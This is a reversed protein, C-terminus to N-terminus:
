WSSPPPMSLRLGVGHAQSLDCFPTVSLPPIYCAKQGVDTKEVMKGDSWLEISGYNRRMIVKLLILSSSPGVTFGYRQSSSLQVGVFISASVESHDASHDHEECIGNAKSENAAVRFAFQHYGEGSWPSGLLVVQEDGDYRCDLQNESLELGEISGLINWKFVDLKPDYGLTLMNATEDEVIVDCEYTEAGNAVIVKYPSCKAPKTPLVVKVAALSHTEQEKLLYKLTFVYTSTSETDSSPTYVLNTICVLISMPPLSGVAHVLASEVYEDFHSDKSDYLEPHDEHMNKWFSYLVSYVDSEAVPEVSEWDMDEHWDLVKKTKHWDIVDFGVMRSCRQVTHRKVNGRSCSQGCLLADAISDQSKEEFRTFTAKIAVSIASLEHLCDVSKLEGDAKYHEIMMLLGNALNDIQKESLDLDQDIAASEIAERSNFSGM